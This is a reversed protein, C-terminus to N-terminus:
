ENDDGSCGCGGRGHIRAQHLRLGRSATSGDPKIPGCLAEIIERLKAPDTFKVLQDGAKVLVEGGSLLLKLYASRLEDCTPDAM